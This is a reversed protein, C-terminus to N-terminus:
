RAGTESAGKYQYGSRDKLREILQARLRNVADIQEQRKLDYITKEIVRYIRNRDMGSRDYSERSRQYLDEVEEKTVKIRLNSEPPIARAYIYYEAIAHRVANELVVKADPKDLLGEELAANVFLDTEFQERLFDEFAAGDKMAEAGGVGGFTYRALIAYTSKLSDIGFQYPGISYAWQPTTVSFRALYNRIYDNLHAPQRDIMSLGLSSMISLLLVFYIKGKNKHSWRRFREWKTDAEGSFVHERYLANPDVPDLEEEIQEGPNHESSESQKKITM